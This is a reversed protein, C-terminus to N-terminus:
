VPSSLYGWTMLDDKDKVERTGGQSLLVIRDSIDLVRRYDHDALIFGKQPRQARILESVLDRFVPAIGTYPEDALIFQAPSYISILIEILRRIGGSLNCIRQNLYPIVLEHDTLFAKNSDSCSLRIATRVTLHEPIFYHQPLYWIMSSRKATSTLVTSGVRVYRHTAAVDGCIIRFLTSKGSGNRGLLGVVEGIRCSLFVDTLLPNGGFSKEVSDVHLETM